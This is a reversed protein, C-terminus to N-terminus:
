SRDKPLCIWLLGKVYRAEVRDVVVPGPLDIVRQFPGEDIEFHLVGLRDEVGPPRPRRRVGRVSVRVTGLCEVRLQEDDVGSLEICLYYCEPADYVNAHPQWCDSDRFHVFTRNMMEDLLDHMKHSWREFDEAQAM